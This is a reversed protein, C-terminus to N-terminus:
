DTEVPLNRIAPETGDGDYSTQEALAQTRPSRLHRFRTAVARRLPRAEFSARFKALEQDENRGKQIYRYPRPHREAPPLQRSNLAGFEPAGRGGRLVGFDARASSIPRDAPTHSEITGLALSRLTASLEHESFCILWDACAPDCRLRALFQSGLRREAAEPM